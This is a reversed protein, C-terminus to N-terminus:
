PTSSLKKQLVLADERGNFESFESLLKDLRLKADAKRGALELAAAHHYRIEGEVKPLLPASKADLTKVAKELWSLGREQQGRKALVWGLTDQIQPAKPELAALKEAYNLAKDDGSEFYLFTLNNLVTENKPNKELVKEYQLAADKSQGAQQLLNAYIFRRQADDQNKDLWAKLRKLADQPRKQAMDLRALAQAFAGSPAIANAAEYAKRSKDYEKLAQYAAAEAEFGVAMKPFDKKLREALLLISAHNKEEAFLEVKGMLALLNKPDQELMRDYSTHASKKDGDSRQASALMQLNVPNDPELQNAKRFSSIASAAKNQALQVMGMARYSAGVEPNQTQLSTAVAQAKLFDKKEFYINFLTLGIAISKPNASASADLWALAEPKKGQQTLLYYKSLIADQHKPDKTLIKNIRVAAADLKKDLLEMRALNMNAAVFDPNKKLAAEFAEIAKAKEGKAMFALGLLNHALPNDSDRKILANATEIAKAFEKRQTLAAVLMVDAQVLKPDIKVAEELNRVADDGQGGQMQIMALQARLKSADPEIAVAREMFEAAKDYKKAHSYASALLALLQPDSPSKELQKELLGIAKEPKKQSVYIASLLRASPQHDPAAKNFLTLSRESAEFQNSQFYIFGLMLHSFLHNGEVKIVQELAEKAEAFKKQKFFVKGRLYNVTPNNQLMQGVFNIDNLAGDFENLDVLVGARGLRAFINNPEKDVARQYAAKADAMKGQKSLVDGRALMVEMSNPDTKLATDIYDLAKVMDRDVIALRSLALNAEIGSPNLSQAELLQKRGEDHKGEVISASGLISLLDSKLLNDDGPEVTAVKRMEKIKGQMMLARALPLAWDRKPAGLQQGRVLEKEASIADNARLYVKGLLVRAAAQDPEEQLSNKLQIIATRLDGEDAAKQGAAFLEAANEAWVPGALGLALVGGALAARVAGPLLKRKM